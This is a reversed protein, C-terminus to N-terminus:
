RKKKERRSFVPSLIKHSFPVLYASVKLHMLGLFWMLPQITDTILIIGLTILLVGYRLMNHKIVTTKATKEGYDLYKDLVFWMHWACLGAMFIGLLLGLSYYLSGKSVILTIIESVVGTMGIGCVLELLTQRSDTPVYGEPCTFDGERDEDDVPPEIERIVSRWNM